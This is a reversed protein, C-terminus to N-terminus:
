DGGLLCPVPQTADRHLFCGTSRRITNVPGYLRYEGCGEVAVVRIPYEDAVLVSSQFQKVGGIAAMSKSSVLDDELFGGRSVAQSGAICGVLLDDACMPVLHSGDGISRIFDDEQEADGPIEHVGSKRRWDVRGVRTGWKEPLRGAAVQRPEEISRRDHFYRNV